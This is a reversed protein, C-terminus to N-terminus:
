IQKLHTCKSVTRKIINSKDIKFHMFKLINNSWVNEACKSDTKLLMKFHVQYVLPM